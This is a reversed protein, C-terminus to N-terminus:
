LNRAILLYGNKYTGHQSVYPSKDYKCIQRGDFSQEHKLITFHKRALEDIRLPSYNIYELNPYYLDKKNLAHPYQLFLIGGSNLCKKVKEFMEELLSPTIYILVGISYILDYKESLNVKMFDGVILEAQSSLNEKARQIMAESIDIG